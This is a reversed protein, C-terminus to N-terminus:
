NSPWSSLEPGRWLVARPTGEVVELTADIPVSAFRSTGGGPWHIIVEDISDAQGLGFHLKRENSAQYGDGAVLQQWHVAEGQRVEVQTGIADRAM